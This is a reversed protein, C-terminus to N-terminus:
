PTPIMDVADYSMSPNLWVSEASTGSMAYLTVSNAGAVLTGAPIDFSFM